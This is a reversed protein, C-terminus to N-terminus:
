SFLKEIAMFSPAKSEEGISYKELIFPNPPRVRLTSWWLMQLHFRQWWCWVHNIKQLMVSRGCSPLVEFNNGELYRYHCTQKSLCMRTKSALNISFQGAFKHAQLFTLWSTNNNVVLILVSLNGSNKRQCWYLQYNICKRTELGKRSNSAKYICSYRWINEKSCISGSIWGILCEYKTGYAMSSSFGTCFPLDNSWLLLWLMWLTELRWKFSFYHKLQITFAVCEPVIDGSLILALLCIKYLVLSLQKHRSLFLCQCM